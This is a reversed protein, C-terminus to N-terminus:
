KSDNRSKGERRKQNREKQSHTNNKYYSFYFTTLTNQKTKLFRFCGLVPPVTKMSQHRSQLWNGSPKELCLISFTYIPCVEAIWKPTIKMIKRFYHNRSFDGLNGQANFMELHSADALLFLRHTCKLGKIFSM